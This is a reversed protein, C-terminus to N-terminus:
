MARHRARLRPSRDSRTTPPGASRYISIPLIYEGSLAVISAEQRAAGAATRGGQGEDGIGPVPILPMREALTMVFTAYLEKARDRDPNRFVTLMLTDGRGGQYICGRGDQNSILSWKTGANRRRAAPRQHVPLNRRRTGSPGPRGRDCPFPRPLLPSSRHHANSLKGDSASPPQQSQIFHVTGQTQDLQACLPNM